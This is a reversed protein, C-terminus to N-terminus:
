EGIELYCRGSFAPIRIEVTEGNKIKLVETKERLTEGSYKQEDSDLLLTWSGSFNPTFYYSQTEGSFNFLCLLSEKSSIRRFCYLNQSVADAEKWEFGGREFDREWMASHELYLHNLDMIFHHFSDHFPYKLIFWDQEKKEDWERMQAIENGMFNLKKGPHLFMYLYLARAQPFKGAYFMAMKQVITAKGHVVEDHSFPLMYNENYFYQMSFTLKHYKGSRYEPYEKFYDLTDNMWGLDWKYDFGLGGESVPKTVNPYATSDEAILMATPYKAKLGANMNRLFMLANKNEGRAQNGQWYILNGIADFRLGDFHYEELWFDSASQLFSRVLGASHMFNCTGWESFGVAPHPYEYLAEGDYFMLGYDNKAFHVTVIDLIVGIGNQHCADIFKKLGKPEGYRSTASFFGTAQYGWSEDAPYENLPMLEVYNYGNEKLYPILLDALEDYQYWGGSVDVSGDEAVTVLEKIAEDQPVEDKKELVAECAEASIKKQDAELAKDSSEKEEAKSPNLPWIRISEGDKRRWSGFHMEYINLPADKCDTRSKMWEEDHFEYNHLDYIVSATGPRKESWFAFPDAHDTFSGDKKYIRYKYMQGPVANEIWCEWFRGNYHSSMPHDTWGNFEGIVAVGTAAPAFTRFVVGKEVVHAGFYTHADFAEGKDFGFYDM